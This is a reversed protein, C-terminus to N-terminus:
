KGMRRGGGGGQGRRQQTGSGDAPANAPRGSYQQREEASMNQARQQWETRFANREAEDANRMTGRVNNLEENSMNSYDASAHVPVASLLIVALMMTTKRIAKEM